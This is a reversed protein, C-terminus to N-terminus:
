NRNGQRSGASASEQALRHSDSNDIAFQECIYLWVAPHLGNWHNHGDSFSASWWCERINNVTAPHPRDPTYQEDYYCRIPHDCGRAAVRGQKGADWRVSNDYLWDTAHPWIFRGAGFHKAHERPRGGSSRCRWRRRDLSQGVPTSVITQQQIPACSMLGISLLIEIPIKM